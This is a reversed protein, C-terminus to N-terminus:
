DFTSKRKQEQDLIFMSAANSTLIMEGSGNTEIFEIEQYFKKAAQIAIVKVIGGFDLNQSERVIGEILSTAAGKKKEPQPYTITNWPSNTLKEIELCSLSQGDIEVETEQIICAAALLGQDDIVGRFDEGRELLDNDLERVKSICNYFTTNRANEENGQYYINVYDKIKRQWMILGQQLEKTAGVIYRFENM